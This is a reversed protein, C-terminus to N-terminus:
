ASLNLSLPIGVYLIPTLKLLSFLSTSSTTISLIYTLLESSVFVSIKWGKKNVIFAMTLAIGINHGYGKCTFIM